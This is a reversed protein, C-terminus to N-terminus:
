PVLLHWVKVFVYIGKDHIKGWSEIGSVVIAHEPYHIDETEQSVGYISDFIEILIGGSLDLKRWPDACTLYWYLSACDLSVGEGWKKEKEIHFGEQSPQMYSSAAVDVGADGFFILKLRM